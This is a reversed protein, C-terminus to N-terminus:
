SCVKDSGSYGIIPIASTSRTTSSSVSQRERAPSLVLGDSLVCASHSLGFALADLDALAFDTVSMRYEHHEFGTRGMIPYLGGLSKCGMGRLRARMRDFELDDIGIAQDGVALLREAILDEDIALAARGFRHFLREVVDQHSPHQGLILPAVDLRMAIAEPEGEECGNREFVFDLQEGLEAAMGDLDGGAVDIM